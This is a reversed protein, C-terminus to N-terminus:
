RVRMMRHQAEKAKRQASELRALLAQIGLEIELGGSQPAQAPLGDVLAQELEALAQVVLERIPDLEDM